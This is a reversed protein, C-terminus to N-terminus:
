FQYKLGFQVKTRLQSEDLDRESRQNVRNFGNFHSVKVGPAAAGSADTVTGSISGTVTQSLAASTFTLCILTALFFRM